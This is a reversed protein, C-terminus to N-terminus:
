QLCSSRQAKATRQWWASFPRMERLTETFAGLFAETDEEIPDNGALGNALIATMDNTSTDGDISVM